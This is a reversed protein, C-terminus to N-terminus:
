REDAAEPWGAADRIADLRREAQVAGLEDLACTVENFDDADASERSRRGQPRSV